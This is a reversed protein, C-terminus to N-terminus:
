WNIDADEPEFDLRYSGNWAGLVVGCECLFTGAEATDTHILTRGYRRGCACDIIAPIQQDSLVASRKLRSRM